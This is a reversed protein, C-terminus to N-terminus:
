VDLGGQRALLLVSVTDDALLKLPLFDGAYCSQSGVHVFEVTSLDYEMTIIALQGFTGNGMTM